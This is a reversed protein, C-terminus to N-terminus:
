ETAPQGWVAFPRPIVPQRARAGDDNLDALRSGGPGSVQNFALPPHIWGMPHCEDVLEWGYFTPEIWFDAGVLVLDIPLCAPQPRNTYPHLYTWEHAFAKRLEELSTAYRGDRSGVWEVDGPAYLLIHSVWDSISRMKGAASQCTGCANEPEDASQADVLKAGDRGCATQRLEGAAYVLHSKHKGTPDVFWRM